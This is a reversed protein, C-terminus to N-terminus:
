ITPALFLCIVAYSQRSFLNCKCTGLEGINSSLLLPIWNVTGRINRNCTSHVKAMRDPSLADEDGVFPFEELTRLCFGGSCFELQWFCIKEPEKAAIIYCM